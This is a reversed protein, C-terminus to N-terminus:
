RQLPLARAAAGGAGGKGGVASFASQPRAADAIEQV